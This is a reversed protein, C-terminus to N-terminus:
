ERFICFEHGAPDHMVRWEFGDALRNTRRHGGGLRTITETAADLDDVALDLHVTTVPPDAPDDVQQIGINVGGPASPALWTIRAHDDHHAIGVELFGSWFAVVPQPDNANIIVTRIQPTGM